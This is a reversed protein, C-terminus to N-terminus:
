SIVRWFPNGPIPRNRRVAMSAIPRLSRGCPLRSRRIARGPGRCTISSGYNAPVTESIPLVKGVASSRGRGCSRAPRSRPSARRSSRWRRPSHRISRTPGIITPCRNAMVRRPVTDHALFVEGKGRYIWFVRMGGQGSALEAEGEISVLDLKLGPNDHEFFERLPLFERADDLHCIRIQGM